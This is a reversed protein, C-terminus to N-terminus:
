KILGTDYAPPARCVRLLFVRDVWYSFFFTLFLIINLFPLSASYLMCAYVTSLLVGYRAAVEFHAGKLQRNLIIQTATNRTAWTEQIIQLPWLIVIPIFTQAANSIMTVVHNGGIDIYWPLNFDEYPGTFLPFKPGSGSSFRDAFGSIRTNVLLTVLATNIFQSIFVKHVLSRDSETRTHHKEQPVLIALGFKLLINIAVIFVVSGQLLSRRVFFTIIPQECAKNYEKNMILDDRLVDTISNLASVCWCAKCSEDTSNAFSKMM